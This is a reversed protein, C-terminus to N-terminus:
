HNRELRVNAVGAIKRSDVNNNEGGKYCRADATANENGNLQFDVPVGM